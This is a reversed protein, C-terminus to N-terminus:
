WGDDTADGAPCDSSCESMGLVTRGIMGMLACNIMVVLM